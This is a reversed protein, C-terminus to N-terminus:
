PHSHSGTPHTYQGNIQMMHVAHACEEKCLSDTMEEDHGANLDFLADCKTTCDSESIGSNSDLIQHVEAHILNHLPNGHDHGPRFHHQAAAVAVLALLVFVKMIESNTHTTFVTLVLSAALLILGM